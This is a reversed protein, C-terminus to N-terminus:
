KIHRLSQSLLLRLQRQKSNLQVPSFGEPSDKFLFTLRVRM